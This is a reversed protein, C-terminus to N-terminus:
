GGGDVPVDPGGCASWLGVGGARAADVAAALEDRHAVNPPFPLADAFGGDAQALNVFLGDDVRYVYALLRGYRDRAEVDRELRVITGPPLLEAVHASAEHGFCEVPTTPHKTEPTDIGILRVHERTGAIDVDVTDGDITEVVTATGPAGAAPSACSPTLALLAGVVIVLWATRPPLLERM